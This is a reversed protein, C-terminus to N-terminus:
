TRDPRFKPQAFVRRLIPVFTELPESKYDPDFAPADYLACFEETMGFLRHGRFKDRLNRDLDIHHNFYYRQFVEHQEIMWHVDDRVFPKLIAAAMVHHNYICLADGIDHLLAATVYEDDFGARLARTGCQVAHELRDVPFGPRGQAEQMKLHDLLRDVLTASFPPFAAGLIQMDQRTMDALDTCGIVQDALTQVALPM